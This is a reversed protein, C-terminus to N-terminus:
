PVVRIEKFVCMLRDSQLTTHLHTVTRGNKLRKEGMGRTTIKQYRTGTTNTHKARHGKPMAGGPSYPDRFKQYRHTSPLKIGLKTTTNRLVSYHAAAACVSSEMAGRVGSSVAQTHQPPAAVCRGSTTQIRPCGINQASVDGFLCEFERLTMRCPTTIDRTTNRRLTRIHGSRQSQWPFKPFRVHQPGTSAVWSPCDISVRQRRTSMPPDMRVDDRTREHELQLLEHVNDHVVPHDAGQCFQTGPSSSGMRIEDAVSTDRLSSTVRVAM